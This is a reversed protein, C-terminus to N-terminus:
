SFPREGQVLNSVFDIFSPAVEIPGDEPTRDFNVYRIQGSPIHIWIYDGSADGSIPIHSGVFDIYTGGGAGKYTLDDCGQRIAERLSLMSAVLKEGTNPPISFFDHVYLENYESPGEKHFIDRYFLTEPSMLGGNHCLYFEIFQDKGLFDEQIALNIQEATIRPGVTEFGMKPNKFFHSQIM